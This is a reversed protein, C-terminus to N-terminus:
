RVLRDFPRPQVTLKNSLRVGVPTAFRQEKEPKKSETNTTDIKSQDLYSQNM